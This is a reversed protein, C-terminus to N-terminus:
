KFMEKLYVANIIGTKKKQTAKDENKKRRKIQCIDIGTKERM